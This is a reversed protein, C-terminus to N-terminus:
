YMQYDVVEEKPLYYISFIWYKRKEKLTLNFCDNVQTIYYFNFKEEMIPNEYKVIEEFRVKYKRELKKRLKKFKYKTKPIYHVIGVVERVPYEEEEVSGSPFSRYGRIQTYVITSDSYEDFYGVVPRFKLNLLETIERTDVPFHITQNLFKISCDEKPLENNNSFLLISLFILIPYM